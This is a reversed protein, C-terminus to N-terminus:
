EFARWISLTPKIKWEDPSCEQLVCEGNKALPCNECPRPSMEICIDQIIQLANIIEEQTHKM